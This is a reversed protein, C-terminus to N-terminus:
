DNWLSEFGVEDLWQAWPALWMDDLLEDPNVMPASEDKTAVQISGIGLGGKGGSHVAFEDGPELVTKTFKPEWSILLCRGCTPCYWEEAGSNYTKGLVMKHQPENM